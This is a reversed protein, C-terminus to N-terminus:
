CLVVYVSFGMHWVAYVCHLDCMMGCVGWLVCWVVCVSCGVCWVVGCVAIGMTCWMCVVVWVGCWVGCGVCWVVCVDWGLCCVICVAVSFIGGLVVGCLCQLGCLVVYVGLWCMGCM